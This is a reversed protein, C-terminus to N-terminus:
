FCPFCEIRHKDLPGCYFPDERDFIEFEDCASAVVIGPAQEQLLTLPEGQQPKPLSLLLDGLQYVKMQPQSVIRVVRIRPELKLQVGLIRSEHDNGVYNQEQQPHRTRKHRRAGNSVGDAGGPVKARHEAEAKLSYVGRAETGVSFTQYVSPSPM